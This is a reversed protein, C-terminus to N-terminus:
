PVRRNKQPFSLGSSSDRATEALYERLSPVAVRAAKARTMIDETM